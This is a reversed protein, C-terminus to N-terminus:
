NLNIMYNYYPLKNYCENQVGAEMVGHCNMLYQTSYWEKLGMEPGISPTSGYMIMPYIM